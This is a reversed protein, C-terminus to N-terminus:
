SEIEKLKTEPKKMNRKRFLPEGPDRKNLIFWEIASIILFVSIVVLAFAIAATMDQTPNYM